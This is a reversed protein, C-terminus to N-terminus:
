LKIVVKGVHKGSSLYDFAANADDFSFIRDILSDLRVDKEVIFANLAEFDAKSGGLLGRFCKTLSKRCVQVRSVCHSSGEGDVQHATETAM